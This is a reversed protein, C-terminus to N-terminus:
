KNLSSKIPSEPTPLDHKSSRNASSVYVSDCMLVMPTSKTRAAGGGGTGGRRGRAAPGRAHQGKGCRAPPPIRPLLPLERSPGGPGGEGAGRPRLCASEGSRAWM